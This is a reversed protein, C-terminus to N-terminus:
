VFVSFKIVNQNECHCVYKQTYTVCLEVYHGLIQMNLAMGHFLSGEDQDM